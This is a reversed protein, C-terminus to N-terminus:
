IYLNLSNPTIFYNLASNFLGLEHHMIDYWWTTINVGYAGQRWSVRLRVKWM